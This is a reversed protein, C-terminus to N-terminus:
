SQNQSNDPQTQANTRIQQQQVTVAMLPTGTASSSTQIRVPNVGTQRVIGPLTAAVQLGRTKKSIVIKVNSLVVLCLQCHVVYM